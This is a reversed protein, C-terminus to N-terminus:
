KEEPMSYRSRSPDFMVECRPSQPAGARALKNKTLGIFRSAAYVPDNLAGVTIIADATGQKGTKSNALMSLTPFSIGDGDASIQSTAIIPCDYKVAMLRAWSYQAELIQDTRQGGNSAFGGFKIGDIMDMVVLGPRVRKLIEEVEYNFFDHINMVRIRDLSGVASAYETSLIGKTSKVIMEQVTLNLAAQYVRQVIRRGPGENCMIVVSRGHSEGYYTDFQPAMHTVESAIFSSKGKDPRAALIIFDGGRLPRMCLNLCDLRWHLGGDVMDEQLITDIGEEVEPVKSKKGTDKEHEDALHRLTAALDIEAGENFRTVADTVNSAYEASLLRPLIGRETEPDVPETLARTLLAKYLEQQETNLTPHRLCFWVYFPDISVEPVDAESLYAQM